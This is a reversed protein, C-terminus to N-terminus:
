PSRAWRALAEQLMEATFPKPLHANAGLGDALARHKDATRSSVVVVPLEELGPTARIERLLEYGNMRPMELDTFM